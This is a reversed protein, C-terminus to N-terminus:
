SISPKISPGLYGMIRRELSRQKLVVLGYMKRWSFFNYIWNLLYSLTVVTLDSICLHNYLDRDEFFMRSKPGDPYNLRNLM